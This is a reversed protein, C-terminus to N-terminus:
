ATARGAQLTPSQIFTIKGSFPPFRAPKCPNQQKPFLCGILLLIYIFQMYVPLASLPDAPM